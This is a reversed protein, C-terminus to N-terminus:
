IADGGTVTEVTTGDSAPQAQMQGGMLQRIDIGFGRELQHMFDVLAAPGRNVAKNFGDEESLMLLDDVGINKAHAEYTEFLAPLQTMFLVLRGNDGHEKLIQVKQALLDNNAQRVIVEAEADGAALTEAAIRRAEAELTVESKNRLEQLHVNQEEVARQGESEAEAINSDAELKIRTVQAERDRRFVEVEQQTELIREDAQSQAVQMRRKADSEAREADAHLRAEEVEVDRRKRSLTKNALNAIYNSTDWVRQMSVSVVEIGFPSLDVQCDDLLVSRFFAREGEVTVEQTVVNATEGDTLNTDASYSITAETAPHIPKGTMDTLAVSGDVEASEVMGIAQLPTTKNLAARFNGIMTKQIQDSIEDQTKGLLQQVASYLLTENDDDVCVCAFADAGVKIGNASNVGEVRVNIPVITLDIAHVKQIMPIVVTWGGKKLRFGYRRGDITAGRGGTIVLIQNSPCVRIFSRLLGLILVFVLLMMFGTFLGAFSAM